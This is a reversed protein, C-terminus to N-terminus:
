GYNNKLRLNVILNALLYYVSVTVLRVVTQRYLEGAEAQGFLITLSHVIFLFLPVGALAILLVVTMKRVVSAYPDNWWRFFKDASWFASAGVIVQLAGMFYNYFSNDAHATQFLRNGGQVTLSIGFVLWTTYALLSGDTVIQSTKASESKM